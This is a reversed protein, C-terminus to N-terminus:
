WGGPAEGELEQRERREGRGSMLTRPVDFEEGREGETAKGAFM